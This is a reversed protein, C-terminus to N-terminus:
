GLGLGLGPWLELGLELVLWRVLRHGEVRGQMIRARARAVVRVRARISVM